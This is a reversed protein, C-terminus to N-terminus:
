QDGRDYNSHTCAMSGPISSNGKKDIPVGLSVHDMRVFYRLRRPYCHKGACIDTFSSIILVFVSADLQENAQESPIAFPISLVITFLQLIAFFNLLLALINVTSPLPVDFVVYDYAVSGLQLVTAILLVFYVYFLDLPVTVISRVVSRVVTYLWSSALFFPLTKIWPTAVDNTLNYSGYTLWVLTEALGVFVLAATRWLPATAGKRPATAVYARGDVSANLAEAEELTLFPQLPAGFINVNQLVRPLPLSTICLAFVFAAPLLSTWTARICSNEFDFPGAADCLPM